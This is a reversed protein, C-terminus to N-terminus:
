SGKDPTKPSTKSPVDTPTQEPLDRTTLSFNIQNEGPEVFRKLTTQSNYASRILEHGEKDTKSVTIRNSGVQAGIRKESFTMEYHGLPDSIGEAMSGDDRQFVLKAGGIPNGDLLILGRVEGLESVDSAGQPTMLHFSISNPGESVTATLITKKNYYEPLPEDTPDESNSGFLGIAVRHEGVPAGKLKRNYKLEYRGNEDTGASCTRTVDNHFDVQAGALPKGDLTVWGVVHGLTRGGPAKLRSPKSQNCGWLGLVLTLVLLNPPLCTLRRAM